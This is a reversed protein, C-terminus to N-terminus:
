ADFELPDHAPQKHWIVQRLDHMDILQKCAPCTVFRDENWKPEGAHRTGTIPPGLDALKTM